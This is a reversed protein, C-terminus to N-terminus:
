RTHRPSVVPSPRLRALMPAAYLTLPEASMTPFEKAKASPEAVTLVIVPVASAKKQVRM